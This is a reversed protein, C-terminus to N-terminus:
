VWDSIIVWSGGLLSKPVQAEPSHLALVQPKNRGHKLLKPGYQYHM